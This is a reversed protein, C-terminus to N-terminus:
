SMAFRRDRTRSSEREWLARGSRDTGSVMAQFSAPQVRVQCPAPQSTPPEDQLGEYERPRKHLWLGPDARAPPKEGPVPRGHCCTTVSWGKRERDTVDLSPELAM